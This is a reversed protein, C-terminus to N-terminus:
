KGCDWREFQRCYKIRTPPFHQDNENEEALLINVAAVFNESESTTGCWDIIDKDTSGCPNAAVNWPRFSIQNWWSRGNQGDADGLDEKRIQPSASRPILKGDDKKGSM